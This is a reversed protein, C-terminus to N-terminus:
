WQMILDQLLVVKNLTNEEYANSYEDGLAIIGSFILFLSFNNELEKNGQKTVSLFVLWMLILLTLLCLPLHLSACM